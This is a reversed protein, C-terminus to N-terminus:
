SSSPNRGSCTTPCYTTSLFSSQALPAGLGAAGKGAFRKRMRQVQRRSRGLSAAAEGVTVEGRDLRQLLSLIRWQRESMQM